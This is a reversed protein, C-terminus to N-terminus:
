FRKKPVFLKEVPLGELEKESISTAVINEEYKVTGDPNFVTLTYGKVSSDNSMSIVFGIVILIAVLYWYKMFRDNFIIM